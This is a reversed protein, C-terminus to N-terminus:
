HINLNMHKKSVLAYRSSKPDDLFLWMKHRLSHPLNIDNFIYSINETIAKMATVHNDAKYLAEWCCHAVNSISLERYEIETKFNSGCMDNPMHIEGTTYADIIFGFILPNRDFYYENNEKDFHESDNNLKALKSDPFTLLTKTYCKFVTGRVNFKIKEM